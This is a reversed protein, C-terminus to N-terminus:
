IVNTIEFKNKNFIFIDGKKLGLMRKALPSVPSLAYFVGEELEIKGLSVSLYYNGKNTKVIAGLEIQNCSKEPNLQGLVKKLKNTEAFVKGNKEMELHIMARGTEHKDGATSKSESQLSKQSEDIAKQILQLKEEILEICKQYLRQKITM